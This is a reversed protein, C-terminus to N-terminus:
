TPQHCPCDEVKVVARNVLELLVRWGSRGEDSKRISEKCQICLDM